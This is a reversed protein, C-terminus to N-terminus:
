RDVRAGQDIWRGLMEREGETMGTKNALPMNRLAVVRQKIAEARLRISDPTDFAVGNPAARFVDDTPSASHCSACRTEVIRRAARFDVRAGVGAAPATPLTLYVLAAVAGAVPALVWAAPRHKEHTILFHRIGVGVVMFLCLILWNFRHGYTAPYHNSIMMFIVPLTVYSNHVSRRKARDSLTWDARRGERTAAILERQAPLIRMWVNAVMITGLLAGVHIFAARGSLTRCLLVVAGLLLAYSIATAVGARERGLPSVWLLDYVVWAAILVGVGLAVAGGPSISSVNPDVLYVGGTLYYVVALLAAGSIWTLAAEWKFWHLVAPVEGPRLRRMEVAYFHGSHVMWVEGEVGERPREPARINSDLWMFYFSTGIWGIAVVLHFWRLGLGLWDLMAATEM